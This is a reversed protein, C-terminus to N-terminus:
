AISLFRRDSPPEAPPSWSQVLGDFFRMIPDLLRLGSELFSSVEQEQHPSFDFDQPQVSLTVEKVFSINIAPQHGDSPYLAAMISSINPPPVTIAHTVSLLLLGAVTWHM